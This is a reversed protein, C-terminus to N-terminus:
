HLYLSQRQFFLHSDILLLVSCGVRSYFSDDVVHYLEILLCLLTDAGALIM